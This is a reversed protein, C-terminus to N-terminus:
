FEYCDLILPHKSKSVQSYKPLKKHDLAIPIDKNSIIYHLNSLFITTM